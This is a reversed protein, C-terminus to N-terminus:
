RSILYEIGKTFRGSFIFFGLLVLHITVFWSIFKFWGRNKCKRYFSWKKRIIEFTVLLLGHYLGYLIYNLTLGHWCGMIIMNIMIAASAIVLKNKIRGNRVMSLTIRSFVYDRLWHSLTIHWRNWFEQIDKSIFPKDFNDPVRIGLLNGAGVAMLSYGAFDFFLYFSYTYMYILASQLTRDMGFKKMVLYIVASIVFKYVMGILIKYIGEAALNMYENRPLTIRIDREFRRSRDIPGSILTPYFTMFYIYESIRLSGILGDGIEIIIQVAKFTMYSIGVVALFGPDKNTAILLKYAILPSISLVIAVVSVVRNCDKGYKYRLYGLALIYEYLVFCILNVITNPTNKMSMAIFFATVSMGYLKLPKEFYGLVIAPIATIALWVFFYTDAYMQM